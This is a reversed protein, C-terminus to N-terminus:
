QKVTEHHGTQFGPEIPRHENICHIQSPHAQKPLNESGHLNSKKISMWM